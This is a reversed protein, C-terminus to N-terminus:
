ADIPDCLVRLGIMYKNQKYTHMVAAHWLRLDFLFADGEKNTVTFSPKRAKQNAYFTTGGTGDPLTNLYIALKFCEAPTHAEDLHKDVTYRRRSYSMITYEPRIRHPKGDIEVTKPLREALTAWLERAVAPDRIVCQVNKNHNFKADILKRYHECEKLSLLSACRYVHKKAITHKHWM